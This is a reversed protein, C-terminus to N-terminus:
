GARGVPAPKSSRTNESYALSGLLFCAIANISYEGARLWTNLLVSLIALVPLAVHLPVERLFALSRKAAAYIVCLFATGGVFGLSIFMDSFDVESGEPTAESQFKGGALTTSGLGHGVPDTIAKESEVSCSRDTILPQRSRVISHIPLGTPKIVSM